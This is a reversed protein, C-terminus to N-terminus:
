LLRVLIGIIAGVLLLGASAFAAVFGPGRTEADRYYSIAYYGRAAIWVLGILGAWLSSM